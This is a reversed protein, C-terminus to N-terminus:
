EAHHLSEEGSTGIEFQNDRGGGDVCFTEGLVKRVFADVVAFGNGDDFNGASCVGDFNPIARLIVIPLLLTAPFAM